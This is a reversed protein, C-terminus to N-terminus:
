FPVKKITSSERDKFSIKVDLQTEDISLFADKKEGDEGFTISSDSPTTDGVLYYFDPNTFVKLKKAM